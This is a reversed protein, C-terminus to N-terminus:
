LTKAPIKGNTLAKGPQLTAALCSVQDVDLDQPTRVNNGTTGMWLIEFAGASTKLPKRRNWRDALCKTWPPDPEILMICCSAYGPREKTLYFTSLIVTFKSTKERRKILKGKTTQQLDTTSGATNHLWTRETKWPYCFVVSTWIARIRRHPHDRQKSQFETHIYIDASLCDGVPPFAESSLCFMSAEWEENWIDSLESRWALCWRAAACLSKQLGGRLRILLPLSWLGANPMSVVGRSVSDWHLTLCQPLM